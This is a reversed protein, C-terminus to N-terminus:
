APAAPSLRRIAAVEGRKAVVSWPERRVAPRGGEASAHVVEGGGLWLVVHDVRGGPPRLYVADGPEAADVGAVAGFGGRELAAQGAASHPLGVGCLGGLMKVLGSCDLGLSTCGGWVYPRGLMGMAVALRDAASPASPPREAVDEAQVFLTRGRVTVPEFGDAGRDAPAARPLSAGLPLREVPGGARRTPSAFALAEASCVHLRSEVGAPGLGEAPVWGVEAEGSGPGWPVRVELFGGNVAGTPFVAEGCRM